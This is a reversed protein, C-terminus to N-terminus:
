YMQIVNEVSKSNLWLYFLRNVKLPLFYNIKFTFVYIHFRTLYINAKIQM